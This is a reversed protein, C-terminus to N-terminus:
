MSQRKVDRSATSDYTLNLIVFYNAFYCAYVDKKHSSSSMIDGFAPKCLCFYQQFCSM